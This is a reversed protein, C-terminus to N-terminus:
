VTPKKMELYNEIDLSQNLEQDNPVDVNVIEPDEEEQKDDDAVKEEENDM